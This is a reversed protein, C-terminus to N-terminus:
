FSYEQICYCLGDSVFIVWGIAEGSNFTPIGCLNTFEITFTNQISENAANFGRLAMTIRYPIQDPRTVISSIFRFTDGDRKNNVMDTKIPNGKRDQQIFQISSIFVPVQDEINQTSPVLGPVLEELPANDIEKNILRRLIPDRSTQDRNSDQVPSDGVSCTYDNVGAGFFENPPFPPPLPPCTGSFDLKFTYERPACSCQQQAKASTTMCTMVLLSLFSINRTRRPRSTMKSLSEDATGGGSRCYYDATSTDM